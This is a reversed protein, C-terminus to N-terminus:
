ASSLTRWLSGSARSLRQWIQSTLRGPRIRRTAAMLTGRFGQPGLVIASETTWWKGESDHYEIELPIQFPREGFREYAFMKANETRALRYRLTQQVDDAASIKGRVVFDRIGPPAGRAHPGEIRPSLLLRKSKALEFPPGFDTINVGNSLPSIRVEFASKSESENRIFLFEHHDHQEISVHVEPRDVREHKLLYLCGAFAGLYIMPLWKAVPSPLLQTWTTLRGTQDIVLGGIAIVGAIAIAVRKFLKLM